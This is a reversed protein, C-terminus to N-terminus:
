QGFARVFFAVTKDRAEAAVVPDPEIRVTGGAGKNAWRDFISVPDPLTFDWAHTADTHLVIELSAKKDEPLSAAFARCM